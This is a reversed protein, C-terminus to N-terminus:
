ALTYKQTYKVYVMLIGLTTYIEHKWRPIWLHCEYHTNLVAFVSQHIVSSILLLASTKQFVLARYNMELSM